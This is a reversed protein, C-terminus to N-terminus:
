YKKTMAKWKRHEEVQEMITMYFCMPMYFGFVFIPTLLTFLIAFAIYGAITLCTKM